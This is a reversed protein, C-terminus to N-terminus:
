IVLGKEMRSSIARTAALMRRLAMPAADAGAAELGRAFAVANKCNERIGSRFKVTIPLEVGALRFSVTQGTLHFVAPLRPFTM